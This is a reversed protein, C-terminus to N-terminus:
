FALNLKPIVSFDNDFTALTGEYEITLAAVWIDNTPILKGRRKLDAYLRGYILSTQMTPLLIGCNAKALVKQLEAQNKELQSGYHFGAQLEGIVVLPLAREEADRIPKQVRPDNKTLASYFSTDLVLLAFSM